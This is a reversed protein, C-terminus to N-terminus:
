CLLCLAHPISLYRTGEVQLRSRPLLILRLFLAQTNTSFGDGPSPRMSPHPNQTSLQWDLFLLVFHIEIRGIEIRRRPFSKCRKIYRRSEVCLGKLLRYISAEMTCTMSLIGGPINTLLPPSKALMGSLGKWRWIYYCALWTMLM